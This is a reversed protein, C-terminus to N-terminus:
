QVPPVPLVAAALDEGAGRECVLFPESGFQEYGAKLAEGNSPFTGVERDGFILVYALQKEAGM